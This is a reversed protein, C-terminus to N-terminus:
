ECLSDCPSSSRVLCTHCHIEKSCRVRFQNWWKQHVPSNQFPSHYSPSTSGPTCTARILKYTLLQEFSTGPPLLVAEPSSTFCKWCCDPMPAEWCKCIKRRLEYPLNNFGTKKHQQDSDSAGPAEESRTLHKLTSAMRKAARSSRATSKSGPKSTSSNIIGAILPM